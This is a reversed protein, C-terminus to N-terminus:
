SPDGGRRTSSALQNRQAPDLLDTRLGRCDYFCSDAMNASTFDCDLFDCDDFHCSSLDAFLFQTRRFTCEHMSTGTLRANSLNTQDFCIRSLVLAQLDACSMDLGSANACGDGQQRLLEFRLLLLNRFAIKLDEGHWIDGDKREEEPMATFSEIWNSIGPGKDRQLLQAVLRAVEQSIRVRGLISSSSQRGNRSLESLETDLIHSALFYDRFAAHSFEFSTSARNDLFSHVTMAQLHRTWHESDATSPFRRSLMGALDCLRLSSARRLAMELATHQMCHLMEKHGLPNGYHQRDLFKDVYLRFLDAANSVGSKVLLDCTEVMMSCYLPRNALATLHDNNRVADRLNIEQATTIAGINSEQKLFDEWTAEGWPTLEVMHFRKLRERAMRGILGSRCSVLVPTLPFGLLPGIFDLYHEAPSNLEVNLEDLGDLFLTFLGGELHTVIETNKSVPFGLSQLRERLQEIIDGKSDARRLPFLVPVGHLPDTVGQSTILHEVLHEILYSKGSGANGLLLLPPTKSELHRNLLLFADEKSSHAGIPTCQTTAFVQAPRRVAKVLEPYYTERIRRHVEHASGAITVSPGPLHSEKAERLNTAPTKVEPAELGLEKRWYAWWDTAAIEQPESKRWGSDGSWEWEHLVPRNCDEKLQLLQFHNGEKWGRGYISGAALILGQRGPKWGILDKEDEHIHGHLFLAQAAALRGESEKREQVQIWSLPYHSVVVPIRDKCDLMDILIDLGILRTEKLQSDPKGRDLPGAVLASNLGCLRLAIGNIEIDRKYFGPFISDGANLPYSSAFILFDDFGQRLVKAAEADSPDLKATGNQLGSLVTKCVFGKRDVDVLDHNGPVLFVRDQRCGSAQLIEEIRKRPEEYRTQGQHVIDGSIVILDPAIGDETRLRSLAKCLDDFVPKSAGPQRPDIHLDSLHLIALPM